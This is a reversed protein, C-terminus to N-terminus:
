QADSHHSSVMYFIWGILLAVIFEVGLVRFFLQSNARFALMQLFILVTVALLVLLLRGAFSHTLFVYVGALFLIVLPLQQSKSKRATSATQSRAAPQSTPRSAM